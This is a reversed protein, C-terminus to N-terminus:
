SLELQGDVQRVTRPRLPRPAPGNAVTGDLHYRSGHCPCVILGDTVSAVICGTHTCEASFGRFEGAASRTVVVELDTFV